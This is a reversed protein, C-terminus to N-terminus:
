HRHQQIQVLTIGYCCCFFVHSVPVHGDINNVHNLIHNSEFGGDSLRIEVDLSDKLPQFEEKYIFSFFNQTWIMKKFTYM